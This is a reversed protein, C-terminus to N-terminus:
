INKNTREQTNRSEQSVIPAVSVTIRKIEALFELLIFIEFSAGLRCDKIFTDTFDEMSYDCHMFRNRFWSSRDDM